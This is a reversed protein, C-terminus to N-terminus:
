GPDFLIITYPLCMVCARMYARVCVCACACVCMRVCACVRVRECAWGGVATVMWTRATVHATHAWGHRLHPRKEGTGGAMFPRDTSLRWSTVPHVTLRYSHNSVNGSVISCSNRGATQSCRCVSKLLIITYILINGRRCWM